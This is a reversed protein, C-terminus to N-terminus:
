KLLENNDKQWNGKYIKGSDIMITKDRDPSFYATRKQANYVKRVPNEYNIVTEREGILTGTKSPDGYRTHGFEHAVIALPFIEEGSKFHSRFPKIGISIFAPQALAGM